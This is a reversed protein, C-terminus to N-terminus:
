PMIPNMSNPMIRRITIFSTSIPNTTATLAPPVTGTL